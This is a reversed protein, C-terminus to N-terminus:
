KSKKCTDVAAAHARVLADVTSTAAARHLKMLVPSGAKLAGGDMALRDSDQLTFECRCIRFIFM